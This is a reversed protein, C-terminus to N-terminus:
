KEFKIVSYDIACSHKEKLHDYVGFWELSLGVREDNELQIEYQCKEFGAKEAYGQWMSLSTDRGENIVSETLKRNLIHKQSIAFVFGDIIDTLDLKIGESLMKKPVNAKLLDEYSYYISFHATRNSTSQDYRVGTTFSRVPLASHQSHGRLKCGVVYHLNSEYIKDRHAQVKQKTAEDNTLEFSLCRNKDKNYHWDLYLKSLNFLNFALRNLSSRIEHNLIYDAFPSSVSRLNWYNVKNKYDWYAEIIQDYIIEIDLAKVLLKRLDLSKKIEADSIEFTRCDVKETNYVFLNNM